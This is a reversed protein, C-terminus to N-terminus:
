DTLWDTFWYSISVCCSNTHTKWVIVQFYFSIGVIRLEFWLCLIATLRKGKSLNFKRPLFHKSKPKQTFDNHLTIRKTPSNREQTIRRPLNNFYNNYYMIPQQPQPENGPGYMGNMYLPKQDQPVGSYFGQSYVLLLSNNWPFTTKLSRTNQPSDPTM